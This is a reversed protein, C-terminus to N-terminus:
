SPLLHYLYLHSKNVLFQDLTLTGDCTTYFVHDYMFMLPIFIFNKVHSKFSQKGFKRHTLSVNEYM